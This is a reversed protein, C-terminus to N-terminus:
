SVFVDIKPLIMNKHINPTAQLFSLVHQNLQRARARTLPGQLPPPTTAATADIAPIDEDYRGEFPSLTLKLKAVHDDDHLVQPRPAANGNSIHPRPCGPQQM